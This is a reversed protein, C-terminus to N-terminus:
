NGTTKSIILVALFLMCILLIIRFRINKKKVKHQVCVHIRKDDCLLIEHSSCDEFSVNENKKKMHLPIYREKNRHRIQSCCSCNWLGITVRWQCLDIM